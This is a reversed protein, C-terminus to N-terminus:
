SHPKLTAAISRRLKPTVSSSESAGLVAPQFSPSSTTAAARCRFDSPEVLTAASPIESPADETSFADYASPATSASSPPTSAIQPGASVRM